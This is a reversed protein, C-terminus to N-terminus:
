LDYGTARMFEEYAKSRNGARAMFAKYELYRIEMRKSQEAARPCLYACYEREIIQRISEGNLRGRRGTYACFWRGRAAYIHLPGIIWQGSKGLTRLPLGESALQRLEQERRVRADYM